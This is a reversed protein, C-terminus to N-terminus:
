HLRSTEILYGDRTWNLDWDVNTPRDIWWRGDADTRPSATAVAASASAPAAIPLVATSCAGLLLTVSLWIAANPKVSWSYVSM